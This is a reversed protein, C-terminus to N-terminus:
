VVSKRDTKLVLYFTNPISEHLPYTKYLLNFLVIFFIWASMVSLDALAFDSVYIKCIHIEHTLFKCRKLDRVTM